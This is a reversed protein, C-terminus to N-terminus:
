QEDIQMALERTPSLVRARCQGRVGENLRQLIPLLFAATKGTGTSACGILDRGALAVPIAEAQIPTPRTYGMDAVADTLPRILQFSSFSNKMTQSGHTRRHM